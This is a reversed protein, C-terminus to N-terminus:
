TDLHLREPAFASPAFTSFLLPIAAGMCHKAAHNFPPQIMTLYFILYNMIKDKKTSVASDM